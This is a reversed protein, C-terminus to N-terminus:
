EGSGGRRPVKERPSSTPVAAGGRRRRSPSAASTHRAPPRSFCRPPTDISRRIMEILIDQARGDELVLRFTEGAIVGSATPPSSYGSWAEADGPTTRSTFCVDIGEFRTRGETDLHMGRSQDM